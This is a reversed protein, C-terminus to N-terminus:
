NFYTSFIFIPVIKFLSDGLSNGIDGSYNSTYIHKDVPLHVLAVTRSIPIKFNNTNRIIKCIIVM